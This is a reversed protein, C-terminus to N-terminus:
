ARVGVDMPLDFLGTFRERSDDVVEFSPSGEQRALVVHQSVSDSNLLRMRVRYVGQQLSACLGVSVTVEAVQQVRPLRSRRGSLQMGRVDMLDFIMLPNRVDPRLSLIDPETHVQVVTSLSFYM